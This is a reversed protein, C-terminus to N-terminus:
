NCVIQAAVVHQTNIKSFADMECEGARFYIWSRQAIRLRSSMNEFVFNKENGYEQKAQLEDVIKQYTQNLLIESQKFDEEICSLQQDEPGKLCDLHGAAGVSQVFLLPLVFIIKKTMPIEM